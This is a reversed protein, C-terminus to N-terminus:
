AAIRALEASLDHHRSWNIFSSYKMADIEEAIEAARRETPTASALREAELSRSASAAYEMKAYHWQDRLCKGFLNHNFDETTKWALQFRYERWAKTMIASRDFATNSANIAM